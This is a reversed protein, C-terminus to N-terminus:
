EYKLGGRDQTASTAISPTGEGRFSPLGADEKVEEKMKRRQSEVYDTLVIEVLRSRPVLGRMVDLDKLLQPEITVTVGIKHGKTM